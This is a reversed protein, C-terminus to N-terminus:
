LYKIERCMQKNNITTFYVSIFFYINVVYLVHIYTCLILVRYVM